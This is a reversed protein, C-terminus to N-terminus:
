RAPVLGTANLQVPGYQDASEFIVHYMAGCNRCTRRGSIRKIIEEDSRYDRGGILNRGREELM